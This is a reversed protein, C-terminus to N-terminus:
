TWQPTTPSKQATTSELEVESSQAVATGFGVIFCLLIITNGALWQQMSIRRPIAADRYKKRDIEPHQKGYSASLYNQSTPHTTYGIGSLTFCLGSV